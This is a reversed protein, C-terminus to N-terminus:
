AVKAELPEQEEIVQLAVAQTRQIAFASTVIFSFFLWTQSRFEWSLAAVGIAWSAFISAWMWRQHGKHKSIAFIVCALVGGFLIFGIPGLETLVSLYTEHAFLKEGYGSFPYAATPYAGGGFGLFAHDGFAHWGGAWLNARGSFHDGKGSSAVTSLRAISASFDFKTIAFALGGVVAFIAAPAARGIRRLSFLAYLFVPVGAVLSGRSSTMLVVLLACIPYGINFWKFFKSKLKPNTLLYIAMPVGLVM